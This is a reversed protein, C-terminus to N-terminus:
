CTLHQSTVESIHSRLWVSQLHPQPYRRFSWIHPDQSPGSYSQVVTDTGQVRITSDELNETAFIIPQRWSSPLGTTTLIRSAISTKLREAIEEVYQGWDPRRFDTSFNFNSSGPSGLSGTGALGPVLVDRFDV